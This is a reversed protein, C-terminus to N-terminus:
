KNHSFEFIKLDYYYKNKDCNIEFNNLLVHKQWIKNNIAFKLINWDFFIYKKDFIYILKLFGESISDKKYNTWKIM